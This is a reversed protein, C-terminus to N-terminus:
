REFVGADMQGFCAFCSIEGLMLMDCGDQVLQDICQALVFRACQSVADVFGNGRQLM